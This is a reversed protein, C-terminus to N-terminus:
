QRIKGNEDCFTARLLSLSENMELKKYSQTAEEAHIRVISEPDSQMRRIKSKSPVDKMHGLAGAAFARVYKDQDDLLKRFMTITSRSAQGYLAHVAMRRLSINESNIYEGLIEVAETHPVVGAIYMMLARIHTPARSPYIWMDTNYYRSHTVNATFDYVFYEM